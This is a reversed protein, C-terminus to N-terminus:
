LHVNVKEGRLLPHKVAVLTLKKEVIVFLYQSFLLQVFSECNQEILCRLQETCRQVQLLWTIRCVCYEWFGLIGFDWFTELIQRSNRQFFCNCLGGSHLVYVGRLRFFGFMCRPNLVVTRTSRPFSRLWSYRAFSDRFAVCLSDRCFSRHKGIEGLIFSFTSACTTM